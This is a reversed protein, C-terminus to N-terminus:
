PNINSLILIIISSIITILAGISVTEVWKSAYKKPSKEIFDSIMIKIESATKEFNRTREEQTAMREEITPM